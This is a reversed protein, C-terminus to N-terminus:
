IRVGNSKRYERQRDALQPVDDAIGGIWVRQKSFRCGGALHSRGTGSRFRFSRQAGFFAYVMRGDSVPTNSAFGHRLIEPNLEQTLPSGQIDRQWNVAGTGHDLCILHHRLTEVKGPNEPSEGYGSASTVYVHRYLVIPSSAGRGPLEAKWYIGKEESWRKLLDDRQAVNRGHDGRFQHWNM